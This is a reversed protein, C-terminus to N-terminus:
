QEKPIGIPIGELVKSEASPGSCLGVFKPAPATTRSIRREGCTPCIPVSTVNRDIGFGHGCAFRIWIGSM